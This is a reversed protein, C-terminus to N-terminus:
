IEKSRIALLLLATSAGQDAAWASNPPDADINRLLRMRTAMAQALRTTM